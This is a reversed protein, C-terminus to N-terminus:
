VGKYRRTQSIAVYVAAFVLVMLFSLAAGGPQNGFTVFQDRVISALTTSQKGGLLAPTIYDGSTLVFTYAFAAVLGPTTLPLVVKTFSQVASAGLDRSNELLDAPISQMSSALILITFPLFVNVFAILVAWKSFLLFSIPRDILHLTKLATNILGDRGLVTYWAYLRVLYSTFLSVVVLFLALNKARRLRFTIFFSAPYGLIICASATVAAISFTRIAISRNVPDKLAEAYNSLTFSYQLQGYGLSVVFSQVLLLLIPILLALGLVLLAPSTLLLVSRRRRKTALASPAARARAEVSM